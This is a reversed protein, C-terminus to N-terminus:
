AAVEAIFERIDGRLGEVESKLSRIEEQTEQSENIIADAVLTDGTPQNSTDIQLPKNFNSNLEFLSVGLEETLRDLPIGLREALTHISIEQASSLETLM